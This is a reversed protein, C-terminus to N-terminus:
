KPCRPHRKCEPNWRMLTGCWVDAIMDTLVPTCSCPSLMAKIWRIM